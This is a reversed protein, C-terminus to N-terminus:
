GRMWTGEESCVKNRKVVSYYRSKPAHGINFSNHKEVEDM